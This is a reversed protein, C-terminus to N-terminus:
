EKHLYTQRTIRVDSLPFLTALDATEVSFEAVCKDRTSAIIIPKLICVQCGQPWDCSQITSSTLASSHQQWTDISWSECANNFYMFLMNLFTDRQTSDARTAAKITEISKIRCNPIARPIAISEQTLDWTFVTVNCSSQWMITDQETYETGKNSNLM